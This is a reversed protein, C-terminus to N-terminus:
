AAAGYIMTRVQPIPRQLRTAITSIMEGDGLWSAACIMDVLLIPEDRRAVRLKRTM